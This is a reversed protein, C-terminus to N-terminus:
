GFNFLVLRAWFYKGHERLTKQNEERQFDEKNYINYHTGKPYWNPDRMEDEEKLDEQPRWRESSCYPNKTAPFPREDEPIYM